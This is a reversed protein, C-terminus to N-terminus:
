LNEGVKKWLHNWKMEDIIIRNVHYGLIESGITKNAWRNSPFYALIELNIQKELIKKTLFMHKYKTLKKYNKLLYNVLRDQETKPMFYKTVDLKKKIKYLNIGFQNYVNWTAGEKFNVKRLDVKYCKM